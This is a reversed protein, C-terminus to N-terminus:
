NKFINRTKPTKRLTSPTDIAGMRKRTEHEQKKRKKCKLQQMENRVKALPDKHKKDENKRL